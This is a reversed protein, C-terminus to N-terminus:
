VLRIEGTLLKQMMGEKIMKYKEKKKELKQIESDMDSLIQAIVKQEEKNSPYLIDLNQVIDKNLNSQTGTQGMNLFHKKSYLMVYYLFETDIDKTEIGLIGQNCSLDIKSICCKGISAYMAFFLTGTKFIKASSNELGKKSINKETNIIYKGANTMDAIVVWPIKGGYYSNVHTLPTGGSSMDALKGLKRTNWKDDFGRLRRKGTLLEQMTGQKINKKKEILKEINNILNDTGSLIHSIRKQEPKSPKAIKFKKFFPLGITKITTGIAIKEFFPKLFQFLYYLFHNDLEQSCKWVMFHQSVAMETTTIASKGIGADRSLVVVGSSYEVASSNNIGKQSIKKNTDSIYRNDFKKSDSLSIWKIGGNYFEPIKANPTHGSGRKAIEDLLVVDWDLPIQLVTGYGLDLHKTKHFENNM